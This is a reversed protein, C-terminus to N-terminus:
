SSISSITSITDIDVLRNSVEFQCQTITSTSEIDDIDIEYNIKPMKTALWAPSASQERAGPRVEAKCPDTFTWRPARNNTDCHCHMMEKTIQMPSTHNNIGGSNFEPTRHTVSEQDCSNLGVFLAFILVHLTLGQPTHYFYPKVKQQYRPYEHKVFLEQM